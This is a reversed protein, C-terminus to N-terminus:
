PTLVGLSPFDSISSFSYVAVLNRAADLAVAPYYLDTGQLGSQSNAPNTNTAGGTENRLSFVAIVLVVLLALSIVSLRSALRWSMTM